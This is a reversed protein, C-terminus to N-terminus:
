GASQHVFMALEGATRPDDASLVSVACRQCTLPWLLALPRATNSVSLLRREILSAADYPPPRAFGLQEAM